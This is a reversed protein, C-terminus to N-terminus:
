CALGAFRDPQTEDNATKPPEVQTARWSALPWPPSKAVEGPASPTSHMRLNKPGLLMTMEIGVGDVEARCFQRRQSGLDNRSMDRTM